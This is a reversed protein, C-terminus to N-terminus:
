RVSFSATYSRRGSTAGKVRLRVRHRGRSLRHGGIRAITFTSAGAPLRLTSTGAHSIAVALSGPASLTVELRVGRRPSVTRTRLRAADLAPPRGPAPAKAGLALLPSPASTWAPDVNDASPDRTLNAANQPFACGADACRASISYIDSTGAARAAGFVIREGAFRAQGFRWGPPQALVETVPKAAPSGASSAPVTYIGDDPQQDDVILLTRGDSSWSLSSPGRGRPWEDDYIAVRPPTSAGGVVIAYQCVAHGLRVYGECSPDQDEVWAMLSANAPDPAADPRPALTAAAAQSWATGSSAAPAAALPRVYLGLPSASVAVMRKGSLVRPQAQAPAGAASQRTLAGGALTYAAQAAAFLVTAGGRQFLDPTAPAAGGLAAAAILEHPYTGDDNAAWISGGGSATRVWVIQGARAAAPALAALAASTALAIRLTRV